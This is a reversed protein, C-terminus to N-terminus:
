LFFVDALSDNSVDLAVLRSFFAVYVQPKWGDHCKLFGLFGHSGWLYKCKEFGCITSGLSKRFLLYLPFLHDM